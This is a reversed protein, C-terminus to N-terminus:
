AGGVGGLNGIGAERRMSCDASLDRGQKWFITRLEGLVVADCLVPPSSRPSINEGM